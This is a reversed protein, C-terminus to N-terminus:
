ESIIGEKTICLNIEKVNLNFNNFTVNISNDNNGLIGIVCDGLGAGSIKAGLISKDSLLTLVIFDLLYNSIGINKMLAHQINFIRGLIGWERSKIAKLGYQVCINIYKFYKMLQKPNIIFYNNIISFVEDISTKYGSYIITIKPIIPLREVVFTKLQYYLLGGFISAALDACSSMPQIKLIIKRAIYFIDLKSLKKGLMKGLVAVTGATIAASSGLGIPTSFESDIYLDFGKNIYKKFYLIVSLIHRFPYYVSLCKISAEYNGLKSFIKVKDSVRSFLKIQFRTNVACVIAQGYYFISHEGLIMLSGPLSVKYM